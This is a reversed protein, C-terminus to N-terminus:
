ATKAQVMQVVPSYGHGAIMSGAQAFGEANGKVGMGDVLRNLFSFLAVVKIIEEVAQESWGVHGLAEIDSKDIEGPAQTLKAGFDLVQQM